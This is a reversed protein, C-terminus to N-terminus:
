FFSIVHDGCPIRTSILKTYSIRHLIAYEKAMRCGQQLHNEKYERPEVAQGYYGFIKVRNDRHKTAELYRVQVSARSEIDRKNM